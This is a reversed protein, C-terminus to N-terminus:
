KPTLTNKQNRSRNVTRLFVYFSAPYSIAFLLLEFINLNGRIIEAREFDDKNPRTESIGGKLYCVVPIGIYKM